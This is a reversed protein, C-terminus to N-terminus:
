DIDSDTYWLCGHTTVPSNPAPLVLTWPPSALTSGSWPVQRPSDLDLAAGAWPVQIGTTDLVVWPDMSNTTCNLPATSPAVLDCARPTPLATPRRAKKYSSRGAPRPAEHPVELIPWCTVDPLCLPVNCRWWQPVFVLTPGVPPSQQVIQAAPRGYMRHLSCLRCQTAYLRLCWPVRFWLRASPWPHRWEQSDFAFRQDDVLLIDFSGDAAAQERNTYWGFRFLHTGQAKSRWVRILSAQLLTYAFWATEGDLTRSEVVLSITKVMLANLRTQWAWAAIALARLTNSLLYSLALSHRNALRWRNFRQLM